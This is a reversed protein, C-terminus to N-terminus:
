KSNLLLGLGDIVSKCVVIYTELQQNKKLLRNYEVKYDLSVECVKKDESSTGLYSVDNNNNM